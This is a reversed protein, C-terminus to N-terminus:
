QGLNAFANSHQKIEKGLNGITREMGWQSYIIGPGVRAVEPAVHSLTHIAPRVMHIHDTRQQVYLTEFEDSFETM